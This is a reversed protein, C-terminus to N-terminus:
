FALAKFLCYSGQAQRGITQQRQDIILGAPQYDCDRIQLGGLAYNKKQLSALGALGGDNPVVM